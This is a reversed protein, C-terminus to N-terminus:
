PNTGPAVVPAAPAISLAPAAEAPAPAAPPAEVKPPDDRLNALMVAEIKDLAAEADARKKLRAAFAPFAEPAKKALEDSASLAVPWAHANVADQLATLNKGSASDVPAIGDKPRITVLGEARVALKQFFGEAQGMREMSSFQPAIRRLEERLAKDSLPQPQEIDLNSLAEAPIDASLAKREGSFSVGDRLKQRISQAVAWDSLLKTKKLLTARIEDQIQASYKEVGSIKQKLDEVDSSPVAAGAVGPPKGAAELQASIKAIDEKLQGQSKEQQQLREELVAAYPAETPLPPLKDGEMFRSALGFISFGLAAVSIVLAFVSISNGKPAAQPPPLAPTTDKKEDSM